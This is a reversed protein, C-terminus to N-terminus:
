FRFFPISDIFINQWDLPRLCARTLCGFLGICCCQTSDPTPLVVLGARFVHWRKFWPLFSDRRKAVWGFENCNWRSKALCCPPLWDTLLLQQHFDVCGPTDDKRCARLTWEATCWCADRQQCRCETTQGRKCFFFICVFFFLSAKSPSRLQEFLRMGAPLGLM